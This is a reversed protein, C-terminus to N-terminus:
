ELTREIPREIKWRMPHNFESSAIRQSVFQAVIINRAQLYNHKSIYCVPVKSMLRNSVIHM